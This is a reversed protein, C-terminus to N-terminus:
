TKWLLLFGMVCVLALMIWEYVNLTLFMELM